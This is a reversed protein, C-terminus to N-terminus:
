GWIQRKASETVVEILLEKFAEAVAPGAKAVLQKFRTAALATRPTDAILDDLSGGLTEREEPSLDDLEDALEKAAVLTAETWPYPAGCSHCFAPPSYDADCIIGAPELGRIACGCSQCAKITPKGCLHCHEEHQHPFLSLSDTIVHGNICIEATEYHEANM